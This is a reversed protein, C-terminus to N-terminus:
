QGWSLCEGGWVCVRAAQELRLQLVRRRLCCLQGRPHAVKLAVERCRCPARCDGLGGSRASGLALDLRLEVRQAALHRLLLRLERRRALRDLDRRCRARQLPLELARAGLRRRRLLNRRKQRVNLCLRLPGLGLQLLPARQELHPACAPRLPPTRAGGGGGAGRDGSSGTHKNSTTSM